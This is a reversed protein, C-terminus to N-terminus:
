NCYAIFRHAPDRHGSRWAQHPSLVCLATLLTLQGHSHTGLSPSCPYTDSGLCLGRLAPEATVARSGPASAAASVRNFRKAQFLHGNARYLKRWRRAGRRYISELPSLVSPYLFLGRGALWGWGVGGWGLDRPSPWRAPLVAAPCGGHPDPQFTMPPWHAELGAERNEKGGAKGGSVSVLGGKGCQPATCVPQSSMGGRDRLPPLQWMCDVTQGFHPRADQGGPRM